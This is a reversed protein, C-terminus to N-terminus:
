ANNGMIRGQRLAEMVTDKPGDAIIKGNDMVIIRNALSLLPSRHTILLLTKGEAFEGLQKRFAEESSYDLAATPEDLLLIPPDNYLARAISVIQKQGGSLNQGKEGVQMEFGAPHQSLLQNLGSINCINLFHEASKPPAALEINYRLTGRFLSIDQPVYGINNRVQNIDLQRIDIGDILVQGQEADHLGLILKELTSKGSGNRGLIAVHEGPEIVFSVNQLSPVDSEQYSFSVNKFEIKGQLLPKDITQRTANQESPYAMLVDLQEYASSAYHFQALLGTAQSVPALARSSLLYVAILSGQTLNGDILLYVGIIIVAVGTLQQLFAAVNSVSASVSRMKASHHACSLSLQEWSHQIDANVNNSKTTELSGLAEILTANREAVSKASEDSLFKLKRQAFYAYILSILAGVLIPALLPLSIMGIVVCYLLVFPFDALAVITLSGIFSRVFEFSQVISAFSGTSQPRYKLKMSLVKDMIASSLMVDTKSAALDVFHHRLLKLVLDAVLVLSIGSALIWLTHTALNPVVRDYVNMVFMPMALAFLNIMIAALLVDRYLSRNQKIVGWFWHLHAPLKFHNIKDAADTKPRVYFVSGAYLADLEALPLTIVSAPLEPYSISVQQQAHDISHIICAKNDHLTLIAPFLATNLQKLPRQLIKSALKARDAARHFVAPSLMNNTLPLGSLLSAPSVAYHHFECIYLLAEFLPGGTHKNDPIM